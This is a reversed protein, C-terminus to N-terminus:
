RISVREGTALLLVIDMTLDVVFVSSSVVAISIGDMDM